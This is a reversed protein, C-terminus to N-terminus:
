CAFVHISRLLFFNKTDTNYYQRYKAGKRYSVFHSLLMSLIFVYNENYYQIKNYNSKITNNILLNLNFYNFIIYLVITTQFIITYLKYIWMIYLRRKFNLLAFNNTFECLMYYYVINYNLLLILFYM